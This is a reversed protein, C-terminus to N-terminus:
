TELSFRRSDFYAADIKVVLKRISTHIGDTAKPRHLEGPFFLAFMGPLVRLVAPSAQQDLWYETDKESSYDNKPALAGDPLWDIIEGGSICYQIDITRRHSEWRCESKPITSYGHVNVYMRTDHLETIGSGADPPMARIWSFAEEFIPSKQELWRATTSELEAFVM